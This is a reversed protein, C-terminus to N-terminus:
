ALGGTGCARSSENRRWDTHSQRRVPANGNSLSLGQAFASPFQAKLAQENCRIEGRRASM